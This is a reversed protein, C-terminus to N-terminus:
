RRGWGGRERGGEEGREEGVKREREVTGVKGLAEELKGGMKGPGRKFNKGAKREKEKVRQEESLHM